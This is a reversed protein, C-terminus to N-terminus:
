QFREWSALVAARGGLGCFNEDPCFELMSWSLIMQCANCIIGVMSRGLRRCCCCGTLNMLQVLMSIPIYRKSTIPCSQRFRFIIRIRSTNTASNMFTNRHRGGAMRCRPRSMRWHTGFGRCWGKPLQGFLASSSFPQWYFALIFVHKKKMRKRM